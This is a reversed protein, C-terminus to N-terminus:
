HLLTISGSMSPITDSPKIIYYYTGVPLDKGNLKGNWPKGYGISHFILHGYRDYVDVTCQPYDVLAPIEWLDNIGDNNPSFANAPPPIGIKINVPNIITCGGSNEAEIYYRGTVALAEPHVAPITAAADTWYSFVLGRIDGTLIAPNTIDVKDPYFATPPDKVGLIPVTDLRVYTSKIDICGEANVAKIYYTGTNSVTKPTPVYELQLSDAFYSFTLGPSSGTTISAATIDVTLPECNHSSDVLNLLFPIGSYKITTYLTDICGNGPYPYLQLALVTNAAPAPNLKLVNGTGLLKSFDANYWNYAEFGYPATLLTANHGGCVVNGGILSACEENIDLYAYGFHGGKSCDNVTFELKLTKGAYGVLTITVPSWPKYYVDTTGGKTKALQFGPLNSSAAYDFSSCKIYQGADVDYVKATFRPQQFDLHSPNQLVVAYNYLISYVDQNAPVTVTYSVADAQAGTQDNGLRISYASGNPCNIPFDGYPDKLQPYSNKLMTVRNPDPTSVSTAIVGTSDINGAYYTWNLFTGTEFGLNAPCQASSRTASFSICLVIVLNVLLTRSRGERGYRFVHLGWLRNSLCRKM